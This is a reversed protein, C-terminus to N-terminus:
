QVDTQIKGKGNTADSFYGEWAKRLQEVYAIDENSAPSEKKVILVFLHNFTKQSASADPSRSGNAAVVDAITVPRASGRFSVDPEPASEPVFEFSPSFNSAGQVVFSTGVEDASVFGMLYLDLDSYGTFPQSTVFSTSSKELIENGELFSGKSNFFFSWHSGDRGLLAESSAGDMSIRAYSLWRHGVEHALIQLTSTYTDPLARNPDSPYQHINGFFTINQLKGASGYKGNDHFLYSGHTGPNGIGKIDNQVNIAFAQAGPIPTLDFNSVLSVFDYSDSYKKYLSDMVSPIDVSEYSHFNEVLAALPRGRLTGRTFDVLHLQAKGYGPVIGILAESASIESDYILDIRGDKYLVIQFTNEGYAFQDHSFFEPVKLWTIMVADSTEQVLIAGSTEPDLDAFFPAIRPPGDLLTDLDPPESDPQDFTINGNSNVFCRDYSKGEFPFSFNKFALEVSDDDHITLADSAGANFGFPIMSYVYRHPLAPTFRIASHKLDFPNPVILIEPDAQLVVVNGSTFPVSDSVKRVHLRPRAKEAQMFTAASAPSVCKKAKHQKPAAQATFAFLIAALLVALRKM